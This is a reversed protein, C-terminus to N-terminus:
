KKLQTPKQETFYWFGNEERFSTTKLLTGNGKFKRFVYSGLQNDPMQSYTITEYYTVKGRKNYAFAELHVPLGANYTQRTSLKDKRNYFSFTGELLTPNGKIGKIGEVLLRSAKKKNRKLDSFYSQDSGLFYFNYAKYLANVSDKTPILRDSLYILWFGIKQGMENRQNVPFKLQSYCRASISFFILFIFIRNPSKGM